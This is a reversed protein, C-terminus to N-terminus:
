ATRPRLETRNSRLEPSAADDGCDAPLRDRTTISTEMRARDTTASTPAAVLPARLERVLGIAAAAGATTARPVDTIAMRM